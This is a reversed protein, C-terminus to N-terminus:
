EHTTGRISFQVSFVSFQNRKVFRFMHELIIEERGGEPHRSKKIISVVRHFRYGEVVVWIGGKIAGFFAIRKSKFNLIYV